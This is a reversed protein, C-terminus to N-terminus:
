PLSRHDSPQYRTMLASFRSELDQLAGTTEAGLKGLLFRLDKATLRLSVIDDHPPEDRLPSSDAPSSPRAVPSDEVTEEASRSVLRFADNVQAETVPHAAKRARELLRSQLEVPLRSFARVTHVRTVLGEELLSRVLGESEAIWLMHALWSKTKGLSAAFSTQDPADSLQYADAYACARALLPLSHRCDDDNEALQALLREVPTMPEPRLVAPISTRGLLRFARYRREGHLLMFPTAARAAPDPHPTVVVPQELGRLRISLALEAIAEESPQPRPNAPDRVVLDM